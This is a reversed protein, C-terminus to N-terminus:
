PNQSSAGPATLRELVLPTIDLAPDAAVVGAASVDFVVTYGYEARVEEIVASVRELIPALLEQQRTGAEQELQTARAQAESQKELIEQQRAAKAEESLMAEQQRYVALMSDVEAPVKLHRTLVLGNTQSILRVGRMLVLGECVRFIMSM